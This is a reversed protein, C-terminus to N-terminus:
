YSKAIKRVCRFAFQLYLTNRRRQSAIHDLLAEVKDHFVKM